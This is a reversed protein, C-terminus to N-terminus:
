PQGLSLGPDRTAVLLSRHVYSMCTVLGRDYSDRSPRGAAPPLHADGLAIAWNVSCTLPNPYDSWFNSEDRDTCTQTPYM